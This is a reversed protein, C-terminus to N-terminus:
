KINLTYWLCAFGEKLPAYKQNKKKKKEWENM